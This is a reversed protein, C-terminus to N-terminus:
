FSNNIFLDLNKKFDKFTQLKKIACTLTNCVKMGMNIVSKKLLQTNCPQIYRRSHKAHIKGAKTEHACSM